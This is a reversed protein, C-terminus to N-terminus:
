DTVDLMTVFRELRARALELTQMGGAANGSQLCADATRLTTVIRELEAVVHDPPDDPLRALVADLAAMMQMVHDRTGAVGEGDRHEIMRLLVRAKHTDRRSVSAKSLRHEEGVPM